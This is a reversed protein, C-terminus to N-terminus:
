SKESSSGGGKEKECKEVTRSSVYVSFSRCFVLVGNQSANETLRAIAGKHRGVYSFSEKKSREM